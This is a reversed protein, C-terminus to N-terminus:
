IIRVAILDHGFTLYILALFAPYVPGKMVEPGVGFDFPPDFVERAWVNGTALYWGVQDYWLADLHPPMQPYFLVFGLRLGLAILFIKWVFRFSNSPHGRFTM